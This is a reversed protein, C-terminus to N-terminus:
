SNTTSWNGTCAHLRKDNGHLKYPCLLTALKSIHL